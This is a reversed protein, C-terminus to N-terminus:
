SFNEYLKTRSGVGVMEHGYVVKIVNTRHESLYSRCLMCFNFLTKMVADATM